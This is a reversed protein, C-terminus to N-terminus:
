KADEIEKTKNAQIELKDYVRDTTYVGMVGISAAGLAGIYNAKGVYNATAIASATAIGGQLTTKLTQKFFEEKSIEQKKYKTYNTSLAFVASFVGGSVLHGVVSRETGTNITVRAM